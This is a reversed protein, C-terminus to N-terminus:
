LSVRKNEDASPKYDYEKLNEHSITFSEIDPHLGRFINESANVNDCQIVTRIKTGNRDWTFVWKNSKDTRKAGRRVKSPSSEINM